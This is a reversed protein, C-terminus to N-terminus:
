VFTDEALENYLDIDAGFHKSLVDIAEKDFVIEDDRNTRFDNKHNPLPHTTQLNLDRMLKSLENGINPYLWYDGQIEGNYQLISSQLISSNPEGRFFGQPTWAKYQALSPQSGVNKWRRYFYYFSKQRDIPNRIVAISKYGLAQAKTLIGNGVLDQLTFHYYAFNLKYKNVIEKSLTGKINSDEVPTYIADPDPINKIFFESLSSSATKPTRLFILKYKHSVYM